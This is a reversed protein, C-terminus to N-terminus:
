LDKPWFGVIAGVTRLSVRSVSLLSVFTSAAEANFIDEHFQMIFDHNKSIKKRSVCKSITVM